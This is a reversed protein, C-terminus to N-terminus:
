RRSRLPRCTRSTQSVEAFIDLLYITDDDLPRARFFAQQRLQALELREGPGSLLPQDVLRNDELFRLFVVALIWHVAAQDLAASWFVEFTEATRKAEFATRWEAEVAARATSAEHHQRLDAELRQRLRKLDALLRTANVM